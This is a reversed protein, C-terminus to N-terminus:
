LLIDALYIFKSIRYILTFFDLDAMLGMNLGNDFSFWWEISIYWDWLFNEKVFFFLPYGPWGYCFRNRLIMMMHIYGVLVNALLIFNM